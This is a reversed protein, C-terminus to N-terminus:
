EKIRQSDWVGVDIARQLMAVTLPEKEIAPRKRRFLFNVFSFVNYGEEYFYRQFAFDGNAINLRHFFAEMLGAADDGTVHLDDELRDSATVKDTVYLGIQERLFAELEVSVAPQPTM